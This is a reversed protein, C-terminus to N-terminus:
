NVPICLVSSREPSDFLVFVCMVHWNVDFLYVGGHTDYASASLFEASFQLFHDVELCGQAMADLSMM